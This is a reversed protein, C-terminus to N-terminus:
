FLDEDSIWESPPGFPCTDLEAGGYFASSNHRGIILRAFFLGM